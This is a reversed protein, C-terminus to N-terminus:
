KAKILAQAQLVDERVHHPQEDIPLADDPGHCYVQTPPSLCRVVHVLHVADGDRCVGQVAWALASAAEPSLSTAVVVNRDTRLSCNM